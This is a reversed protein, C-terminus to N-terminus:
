MFWDHPFGYRWVNFLGGSSDVGCIQMVRTLYVLLQDREESEVTDFGALTTKMRRLVTSRQPRRPLEAILSEIAADVAQQAARREAENSAGPYFTTRDLDFKRESQVARLQQILQPTVNLKRDALGTPWLYFNAGSLGGIVVAVLALCAGAFIKRLL